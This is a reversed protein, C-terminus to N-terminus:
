KDGKPYSFTELTELFKEAEESNSFEGVLLTEIDSFWAVVNVSNSTVSVEFNRVKELSVFQTKAKNWFYQRM